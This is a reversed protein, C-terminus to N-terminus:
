SHNNVDSSPRIEQIWTTLIFFCSECLNTIPKASGYKYHGRIVQGYTYGEFIQQCASCQYVPTLMKWVGSISVVRKQVTSSCKRSDENVAEKNYNISSMEEKKEM